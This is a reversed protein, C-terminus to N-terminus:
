KKPISDKIVIPPTTSQILDIGNENIKDMVNSQRSIEML